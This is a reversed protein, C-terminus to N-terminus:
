HHFNALFFVRDATMGLPKPVVVYPPLGFGIVELERYGRCGILTAKIVMRIKRAAWGANPCLKESSKPFPGLEVPRIMWNNRSIVTKLKAGDIRTITVDKVRITTTSEKRRVAM